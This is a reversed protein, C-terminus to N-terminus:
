ELYNCKKFLFCKQIKFIRNEELFTSILSALRALFPLCERIRPHEVLPLSNNPVSQTSDNYPSTQVGKENGRSHMHEDGGGGGYLTNSLLISDINMSLKDLNHLWVDIEREKRIIMKLIRRM